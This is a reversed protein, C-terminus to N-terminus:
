KVNQKFHNKAKELDYDEKFYIASKKTKTDMLMWCDKNAMKCDKVKLNGVEGGKAYETMNAEGGLFHTSASLDESASHIKAVVWAPVNVGTKLVKMLEKAHHEIQFADNMVMESNESEIGGGKAYEDESYNKNTPLYEFVGRDGNQDLMRSNYYIGYQATDEKTLESKWDAWDLRDDEHAKANHERLKDRQIKIYESITFDTKKKKDITTGKAYKFEDVRELRYLIYWEEDKLKSYRTSKKDVLKLESKLESLQNELQPKTLSSIHDFIVEGINSKIKDINRFGVGGGKAMEEASFEFEGVKESDKLNLANIRNIKGSYDYGYNEGKSASFYRHKGREYIGWVRYDVFAKNTRSKLWEIFEEKTLINGGKAMSSSMTGGIMPENSMSSNLTGGNELQAINSVDSRERRAEWYVGSSSRNAIDRKTPKKYNDKGKYRWGVPKAPRELDDKIESKSMTKLFSYEPKQKLRSILGNFDRASLDKVKQKAKLLKEALQKANLSSDKIDAKLREIKKKIADKAVKNDTENLKRELAAIETAKKNVEM